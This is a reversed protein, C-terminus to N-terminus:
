SLAIGPQYKIIRLHLLTAAFIQGTEEWFWTLWVTELFFRGHCYLTGLSVEGGGGESFGMIGQM